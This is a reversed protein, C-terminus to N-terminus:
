KSRFGTQLAVDQFSNAEDSQSIQSLHIQLYRIRHLWAALLAKVPFSFPLCYLV